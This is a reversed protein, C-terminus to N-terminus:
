RMVVNFGINKVINQIRIDESDSHLNVESGTKTNIIGLLVVDEFDYDCVIRNEKYIIEFL